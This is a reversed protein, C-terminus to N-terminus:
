LLTVGSGLDYSALHEGSAEDIRELWVIAGSMREEALAALAMEYAPVLYPYPDISRGNRQIEFHTHPTGGEANGSDGVWAVHQGAVVPTGVEIGPVVTSTWDARGDNTGPTDNNLHVYWTEWGDGHDIVLYRGARRQTAIRVVVGDAAAYVPTMKPAMLDTGEHRRGGSRPAGFTSTFTTVEPDQPFVQIVFDSASAPMPVILAFSLISIGLGAVTARAHARVHPFV